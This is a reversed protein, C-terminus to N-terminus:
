TDTLWRCYRQHRGTASIVIRFVRDILLTLICKTLLLSSYTYAWNIKQHRHPPFVDAIIAGYCKFLHECACTNYRTLQNLDILDMQAQIDTFTIQKAHRMKQDREAAYVELFELICSLPCHAIDLRRGGLRSSCTHLSGHSVKVSVIICDCSLFKMGMTNYLLMSLLYIYSGFRQQIIRHIIRSSASYFHFSHIFELKIQNNRRCTFTNRNTLRTLLLVIYRWWWLICLSIKSLCVRLCVSM